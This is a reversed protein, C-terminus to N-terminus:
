LRLGSPRLLPPRRIGAKATRGLLVPLAHEVVHRLIRWPFNRMEPGKPAARSTEPTGLAAGMLNGLAADPSNKPALTNM